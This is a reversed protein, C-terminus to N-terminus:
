PLRQVKAQHGMGRRGAGPHAPVECPCPLGCVARWQGAACRCFLHRSVLWSLSLFTSYDSIITTLTLLSASDDTESREGPEGQLAFLVLAPVTRPHTHTLVIVEHLSDLLCDLAGLTQQHAEPSLCCVHEVVRWKTMHGECMCQYTRPNAILHAIWQKKPHTGTIGTKQLREIESQLCM